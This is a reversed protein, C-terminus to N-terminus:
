RTKVVKPNERRLSAHNEAHLQMDEKGAPKKM